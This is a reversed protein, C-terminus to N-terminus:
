EIAFDPSGVKQCIIATKLTTNFKKIFNWVEEMTTKELELTEEIKKHLTIIIWILEKPISLYDALFEERKSVIPSIVALRKDRTEAPLDIINQYIDNRIKNEIIIRRNGYSDIQMENTIDEM